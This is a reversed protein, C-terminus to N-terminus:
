KTIGQSAQTSSSRRRQDRCWPRLQQALQNDVMPLLVLVKWLPSRLKPARKATYFVIPLFM